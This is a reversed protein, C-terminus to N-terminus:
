ITVAELLEKTYNHSPSYLVQEKTGYEVIVGNCIVAIKDALHAVISLDHTILLISLNYQTKLEQFLELIQAQLTVDLNSTPEDAILLKPESLLAQAIMVRQRMGGSLQHPYDRLIKERSSLGVRELQELITKKIPKKALDRHFQLVERLQYGINFVPNLSSLPDQFIISIQRGRIQQMQDEPLGLLNRGEFIIEGHVIEGGPPLLRLISLGTMTKGSGSAGVLALVESKAMQLTLGDLAKVVQEQGYFYVKLNNIKLFPENM